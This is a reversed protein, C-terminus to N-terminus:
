VQEQRSLFEHFHLPLFPNLKAKQFKFSHRIRIFHVAFSLRCASEVILSLQTLPYHHM